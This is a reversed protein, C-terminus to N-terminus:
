HATRTEVEATRDAPRSGAMVPRGKATAVAIMEDRARAEDYDFVAGRVSAGPVQKRAAIDELTEHLAHDFTLTPCRETRYIASRVVNCLDKLLDSGPEFKGARRKAPAPLRLRDVQAEDVVVGLVQVSGSVRVQSQPEDRRPKRWTEYYGRAGMWNTAGVRVTGIDIRGDHHVRVVRDAETVKFKRTDVTVARGGIRMVALGSRDPAPLVPGRAVTASGEKVAAFLDVMEVTLDVANEAESKTALYLAQRLNLWYARGPRGGKASTQRVTRCVEGFRTLAQQHREILERIVRPREFGLAVALREDEIRPEHNVVTNIDSLTLISM